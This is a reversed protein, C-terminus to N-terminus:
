KRKAQVFRFQTFRVLDLDKPMEVPHGSGVKGRNLDTLPDNSALTQIDAPSFTAIRGFPIRGKTNKGIPHILANQRMRADILPFKNGATLDSPFFINGVVARVQATEDFIVVLGVGKLLEQEEPNFGRLNNDFLCLSLQPPINGEILGKIYEPRRFLTSRAQFLKDYRLNVETDKMNIQYEGEQVQPFPYLPFADDDPVFSSGINIQFGGEILYGSVEFLFRYEKLLQDASQIDKYPIITQDLEIPLGEVLELEISAM